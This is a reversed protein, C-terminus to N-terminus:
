SHSKDGEKRDKGDKKESKEGDKRDRNQYPSAGAKKHGFDTKRKDGIHKSMKKAEKAIRGKERSSKKEAGQGMFSVSGEQEKSLKESKKSQDKKDRKKLMDM